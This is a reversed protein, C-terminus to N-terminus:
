TNPYAAPPHSVRCVCVASNLLDLELLLPIDRAAVTRYVASSNLLEVTAEKWLPILKKNAIVVEGDPFIIHSTADFSERYRHVVCHIEKSQIGGGVRVFLIKTASHECYDSHADCM